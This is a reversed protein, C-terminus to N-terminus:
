SFHFRFAFWPDCDAPANLTNVPLVTVLEPSRLAIALMVYQDKGAFTNHTKLLQLEREYAAQWAAWAGKQGGFFGGEIRVFPACGWSKGDGGTVNKMLDYIGSTANMAYDTPRISDISIVCLRDSPLKLKHITDINPFTQILPMEDSRRCAGMDSWYFWHSQFPDRKIAEEVFWTKQNWLIYLEPNHYKQEPDMAHCRSWFEMHSYMQLDHVRTEIVLTKKENISRQARVFPAWHADVFIVMAAPLSLFMTAWNRYDDDSHKSQAIKFLCTVITIPHKAHAPPPPIVPIIASAKSSAPRSKADVAVIDWNLPDHVDREKGDGRPVVKGDVKGQIWEAYAPLLRDWDFREVAYSMSSRVLSSMHDFLEAVGGSSAIRNPCLIAHADESFAHVFDPRFENIIGAAEVVDKINVIRVSYGMTVFWTGMNWIM